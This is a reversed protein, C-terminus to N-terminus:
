SPSAPPIIGPTVPRAAGAFRRLIVASTVAAAVPLAPGPRPGGPNPWGRRWWLVGAAVWAVSAVATGPLTRGRWRGVAWAVAVDLPAYLPFTAACQGLSVAVGKGGKFGNWLPYCHGVVAATGSVHAGTDGALRRGVMCAGAGKATDAALVAYGWKRGLLAAANVAGPNGTGARRLDVAGGTAIRSALDASPTTGVVYGAAAAAALRLVSSKGGLSRRTGSRVMTALDYSADATRRGAPRNRFAAEVGANDNLARVAGM